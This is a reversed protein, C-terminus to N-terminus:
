ELRIDTGKKTRKDIYQSSDQYTMIERMDEIIMDLYQKRLVYIQRKADNKDIEHQYNSVSTVSNVSYNIGDQSYKYTFDSDVYQGAELLISGSPNKIETTEYHHIQSLQVKDYKNDLYRQFDFQSMPWEDHINIINNSLLVVWDLKPDGYIEDAVNDPRDDGEVQFKNFAVVNQFFDERIKARKFLNKSLIMDLNSNRNETHSAILINPFLDFYAM